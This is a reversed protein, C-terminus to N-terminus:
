ASIYKPDKIEEFVNEVCSLNEYFQEDDFINVYGSVKRNLNTSEINLEYSRNFIDVHCRVRRDGRMDYEALAEGYIVEDFGRESMLRKLDLRSLSAVKNEMNNEELYYLDLIKILSM